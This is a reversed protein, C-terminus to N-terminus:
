ENFLGQFPWSFTFLSINLPLLLYHLLSGLDKKTIRALILLFHASEVLSEGGDAEMGEHGGFVNQGAFVPLKLEHVGDALCRKEQRADTVSINCREPNEGQCFTGCFTDKTFRKTSNRLFVM